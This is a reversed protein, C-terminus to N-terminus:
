LIAVPFRQARPSGQCGTGTRHRAEARGERNGAAVVDSFPACGHNARKAGDRQRGEGRAGEQEGAGRTRECGLDVGRRERRWRWRPRPAERGTGVAHGAVRHQVERELVHGVEFKRAPHEVDRARVEAIAEAEVLVAQDDTAVHGRVDVRRPAERRGAVAQRDGQDRTQRPPADPRHGAADVALVDETRAPEVDLDDTWTEARIELDGAPEVRIPVM